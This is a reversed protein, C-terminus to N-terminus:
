PSTKRYDGVVWMAGSYPHLPSTINWTDLILKGDIGAPTLCMGCRTTLPDVMVETLYFVANQGIMESYSPNELMRMYLALAAGASLKGSKYVGWRHLIGLLSDGTNTRILPARLRVLESPVLTANDPNKHDGVITLERKIVRLASDTVDGGRGRIWNIMTEVQEACSPVSKLYIGVPRGNM